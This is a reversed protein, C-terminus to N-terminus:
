RHGKKKGVAEALARDRWATMSAPEFRSARGTHFIVSLGNAFAQMQRIRSRRSKGGRTFASAVEAALDPDRELQRLLTELLRFETHTIACRKGDVEIVTQPLRNKAVPSRKSTEDEIWLAAYYDCETASMCTGKLFPLLLHCRGLAGGGECSM